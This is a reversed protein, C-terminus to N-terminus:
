AEELVEGVVLRRDLGLRALGGGALLECGARQQVCTARANSCARRGARQQVRFDAPGRTASSPAGDSKRTRGGNPAGDEAVTM